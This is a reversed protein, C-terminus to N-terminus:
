ATDQLVSPDRTAGADELTGETDQLVSPVRSSAPAVSIAISFNM